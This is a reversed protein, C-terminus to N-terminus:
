RSKAGTAQVDYCSARHLPRPLFPTIRFLAITRALTKSSAKSKAAGKSAGVSIRPNVGGRKKVAQSDARVVLVAVEEFARARIGKANLFLDRTSRTPSKPKEFFGVGMLPLCLLLDALYSEADATDADSLSPVTPVNGNDLECRKTEDALRVLRAELNGAGRLSRLDQGLIGM